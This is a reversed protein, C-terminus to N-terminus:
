DLAEKIICLQTSTVGDAVGRETEEMQTKWVLYKIFRHAGYARTLVQVIKEKTVM